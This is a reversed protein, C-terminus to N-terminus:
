MLGCIYRSAIHISHLIKLSQLTSIWRMWGPLLRLLLGLLAHCIQQAVTESHSILSIFQRVLLSRSHLYYVFHHCLRFNIERRPVRSSGRSCRARGKYRNGENWPPTNMSDENISQGFIPFTYVMPGIQYLVHPMVADFGGSSAFSNRCEKKFIAKAGKRLPMKVPIGGLEYGVVTALYPVSDYENWVRIGGYPSVHNNMYKVFDANGVAPAAVTVLNIGLTDSCFRHGVYYVSALQALAGGMSHGTFLVSHKRKRPVGPAETSDPAAGATNAIADLHSTLQDSISMFAQLFGGHVEVIEYEPVLAESAVFAAQVRQNVEDFPSSVFSVDTMVDIPDLTGRFAVITLGQEFDTTIICCAKDSRITEVKTDGSILDAEVETRNSTRKEEVVPAMMTENLEEVTLRGLAMRCLIRARRLGLENQRQRQLDEDNTTDLNLISQLASATEKSVTSLYGFDEDLLQKQYFKIQEKMQNMTSEVYAEVGEFVSLLALNYTALSALLCAHLLAAYNPHADSALEMRVSDPTDRRVTFAGQQLTEYKLQRPKPFIFRAAKIAGMSREWSIGLTNDHNDQALIKHALPKSIAYNKTKEGKVTPGQLDIAGQDSGVSVAESAARSAEFRWRNVEAQVAEKLAVVDQRQQEILSPNGELRQRKAKRLTRRISAEAVLDQRSQEPQSPSSPRVRGDQVFSGMYDEVETNTRDRTEEEEELRANSGNFNFINKLGKMLRDRKRVLPEGAEQLRKEDEEKAKAVTPVNEQRLKKEKIAAM